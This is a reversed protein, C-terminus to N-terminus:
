KLGRSKRVRNGFTSWAIKRGELFVKGNSDRKIGMKQAVQTPTANKGLELDLERVATVLSVMGHVNQQPRDGSLIEGTFWELLQSRIIELQKPLWADSDVRVRDSEPNGYYKKVIEATRVYEITNKIGGVISGIM